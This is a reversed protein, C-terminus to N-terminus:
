QRSEERRPIRNSLAQEFNRRFEEEFEAGMRIVVGDAEFTIKAVGCRTELAADHIARRLLEIGEPSRPNVTGEREQLPIKVDRMEM